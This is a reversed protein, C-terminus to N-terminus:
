ECETVSVPFVQVRYFRTANGAPVTDLTSVRSVGSATTFSTLQQWSPNTLSSTFEVRNLAGAMSNWSLRVRNTNGPVYEVRLDISERKFFPTPDVANVIGDLDCDLDKSKTLAINFTYVAGGPYVINTSSLPGTFSRVWRLRGDHAGDLKSPTLNANAFYVRMEPDIQLATNYNTANNLLELYDVYMANATTGPVPAFHFLTLNVGDLTLKGVAINNNFGAPSAGRDFSCWNHYSEQNFRPAFSRIHTYLLDGNAPRILLKFGSSASWQSIQGPGTDALRSAITLNLSGPSSVGAQIISNSVIMENAIIDVDANGALKAGISNTFV